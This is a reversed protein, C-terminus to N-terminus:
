THIHIVNEFYKQHSAEAKATTTGSVDKKMVNTIDERKKCFFAM